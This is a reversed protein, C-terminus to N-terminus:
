SANTTPDDERPPEVPGGQPQAQGSESSPAEQFFLEITEKITEADFALGLGTYSETYYRREKEPVYKTEAIIGLLMPRIGGVALGTTHLVMQNPKLIVPSGSSGPVTGGDILFGRLVRPKREGADNTAFDEFPEGINSAILGQRMIPLNTRHHQIGLPYGIVYVEQGMTVEGSSLEALTVFDSYPVHQQHIHINPPTHSFLATVDFALVDVEDSPHECWTIIQRTPFPAVTGRASMREIPADGVQGSFYIIVEQNERRLEDNKELVHKNTVLFLKGKNDGLERVERAVLFGTGKGGSENEILMTAMLWPELGGGVM